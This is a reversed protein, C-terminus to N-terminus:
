FKKAMNIIKKPAFAMPIFVKSMIDYIYLLQFCLLGVDFCIIGDKMVGSLIWMNNM